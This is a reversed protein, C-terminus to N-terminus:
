SEYIKALEVCSKGRDDHYYRVGDTSVAILYLGLGSEGSLDLEPLADSPSDFPDGSHRLRILVRGPFAEAELRIPQDPRGHYAHKMINSVAENVALELSCVSGEDLPRSPLNRCFDRVFRRARSLQALESPIEDEARAMPLEDERVRIAVGTLDDGLRDSESFDIVARRIAEVLATPELHRNSLVCEQLRELGFIERAPNRADTIGDSFLLVLDGPGVPVSLQDHIEGERIGLPLNNGRVIECRGTGDHVHLLGTHGCDVLQLSRRGADMRVYSLTVFSELNILDRVLEAHARMVIERPEPLARGRSLDLLNNLAKLFQSKTAAGLLAAPVGKGMVDGVIVDLSQDPHTIFVYFDGDIRQSPVTVAAVQLGPIEQPPRDLLLTQQIKFGVDIELERAQELERNAEQLEATRRAVRQELDANLKRVEEEAVEHAAKTRLAAVGFSLDSALESLLDVEETGFTDPESAYIMLAGFVTSDILLPIAVCSGYGRKLADERWPLMRPDTAIERAVATRGTRICTGAPGRGRESNAWTARLEELYGAAFGANAVPRVSKAADDEARGVWSFRYGAEQVVIECVQQLLASESTARVLAENCKSLARQARHIRWLEAEGRHREIASGLVNAVSQLFDIENSTFTRRRSTHAGLVGYPGEKTPIVVTVGSVVAHEHLLVTGQFREEAQLDEVVVPEGVLLTYGAQSGEGLAVTAHGVYGPKWGVGSRLLLAEHNPLLELIKCFEINLTRAVQATVDDVVDSLSPHSLAREGVEAVVAQLRALRRIENEAQKPGTIDQVTGTGELAKGRPDFRLQAIERVWKLKGNVVIRHEIDYPAGQLAETWAQHVHERDEPHVTDLFTEYTLETSEPTEFIRFVEDSWDLRNRTVDLHWSGVRAIRQAANLSAESERMAVERRRARESLQGVTFATTLFAGLAIWDRPEAVTFAHVPEVFFFGFGLVGLVSALYAPRSGWGTAVFLVVLLMALSVTQNNLHTRFAACVVTVAAIGLLGAIYGPRRNQFMKAWLSM